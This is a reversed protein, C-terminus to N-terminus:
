ASNIEGETDLNELAAFWNTVEVRFQRKGEVDNLKKLNAREM